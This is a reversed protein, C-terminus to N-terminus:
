STKRGIRQLLIREEPLLKGPDVGSASHAAAQLQGSAQQLLALYLFTGGDRLRDEGIHNLVRLGEEYRGDLYLAFAYTAAVNANDPQVEFDEAAIQAPQARDHGSLLALFAFNNRAVPDGPHDDFRERAVRLLGRADSRRSYYAWLGDLAASRYYCGPAAVQWYLAEAEDRWSWEVAVQALLLLNRGDARCAGIAESWNPGPLDAERTCRVLMAVRMFDCEDWSRGTLLNHLGRWDRLATLADAEVSEIAVENQRAAPMERLWQLADDASGHAIMWEAVALVRTRDGAVQRCLYALEAHREQETPATAVCLLDDDVTRDSQLLM